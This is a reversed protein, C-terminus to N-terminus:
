SVLDVKGSINPALCGDAPGASLLARSEMAPGPSLGRLPPRNIALTWVDRREKTKRRRPQPFIAAGLSFRRRCGTQRPNEPNAGGFFLFFTDFPQQCRYVPWGVPNSCRISPRAVKPYPDARPPARRSAQRFTRCSRLFNRNKRWKARLKSRKGM